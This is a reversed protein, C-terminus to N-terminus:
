ARFPFIRPSALHHSARVSTELHRFPPSSLQDDLRVQEHATCYNLRTPRSDTPGPLSLTLLLFPVLVSAPRVENAAPKTM